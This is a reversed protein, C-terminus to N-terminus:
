YLQGEPPPISSSQSGKTILSSLAPRTCLGPFLKRPQPFPLLANLTKRVEWERGGLVPTPGRSTLGPQKGRPRTIM